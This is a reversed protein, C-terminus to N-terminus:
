SLYEDRRHRCADWEALGTEKNKGTKPRSKCPGLITGHEQPKRSQGRRSNREAAFYLPFAARNRAATSRRRDPYIVPQDWRNADAVPDIM